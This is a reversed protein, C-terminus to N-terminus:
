LERTILANDMFYSENKKVMEIEQAKERSAWAPPNGELIITM